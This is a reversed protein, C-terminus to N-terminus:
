EIFFRLSGLILRLLSMSLYPRLEDMWYGDGDLFMLFFFRAM